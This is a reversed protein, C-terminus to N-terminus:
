KPKADTAGPSKQAEAAPTAAPKTQPTTLTLLTEARRRIGQPAGGDSYIEQLLKEAEDTKGAKIAALALVEKASFRWASTGSRYVNLDRALADYSATDVSLAAVQIQAFDRLDQPARADAAVARYQELAADKRKKAVADAALSLRALVKYAQPGDTVIANLAKEADADKGDDALALAAVFKEGGREADRTSYFKNISYGAAVAVIVFAGAALWIGYRKLFEIAQHKRYDEEVERFFGEDTTSM